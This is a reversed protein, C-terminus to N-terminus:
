RGFIKRWWPSVSKAGGLKPPQYRIPGSGFLCNGYYETERLRAHRAFDIYPAACHPCRFPNLHGFRTGDPAAPLSAELEAVASLDTSGLAPPAGPTGGDLILTYRGSGSYMYAVDSFGAHFSQIQFSRSCEDCECSLRVSGPTVSGSFHMGRAFLGQGHLAASDGTSGPLFFPQFRVGSGEGNILQQPDFVEAATVACDAQCSLGKHVRISFHAWGSLEALSHRHQRGSSDEFEVSSDAGIKRSPTLECPPDDTNVRAIEDGNLRVLLLEAM